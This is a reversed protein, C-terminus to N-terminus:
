QGELSNTMTFLSTLHPDAESLNGRVQLDREIVWWVQYPSVEFRRM